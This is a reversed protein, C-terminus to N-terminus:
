TQQPTPLSGSLHQRQRLLPALLCVLALGLLLTLGFAHLAPTASLALLGFSLGTSLAGLLVALWAHGQGKGQHELLFIGYDVGMGLLLMLALLHFLQFPEGLAGLVALCGLSALVTPLWARWATRGFRLAMAAWVLLHGAVLIWAMTGRFRGLLESMDSARDVWHVGEAQALGLVRLAEAQARTALGRILVVSAYGDDGLPGLWQSCAAACAPSALWAPLELPGPRFAPRRLDEGLAHGVHDLVQQEVRATLQRNEAQRARSPVWDSVASLTLPGLKAAQLRARLAEERQLVAEPTAGQVVFFQTPSPMQLLRGVDIQAQILGPPSSQLQRLDDNVRLRSAGWACLIGLLALLAWLRRGELVPWRALSAAVARGMRSGPLSGGDLAPFWCVATLFAAILGVSSFVAMQRLGPFPVVALVLYGLVSTLLALLLGPLLHKMLPWRPTDPSALRSTFYHIGFDEAVGILSAGFVLTLLHVQGFVWVTVSLAAACGVLLSVAILAVPRLARFTWWVLAIVAVLSGWGITNMERQGQVAGAEAHLPVGARLVTIPAAAGDADVRTQAMRGAEDLADAWRRAGDFRFAPGQTEYLLVAWDRQGDPDPVWLLGDRPRAATLGAHQSWWAPWLGLPDALWATPQGTNLGHLRELARATLAPVDANRLAQRQADTLLADRWPRYFELAQAAVAGDATRRLGARSAALSQDFAAAATHAARWDAAGLMIVVRREGQEGLQRIARQAVSAQEDQPLLAFVDTDLRPAQWFQWQHWGIAAVVLLWALALWQPTGPRAPLKM